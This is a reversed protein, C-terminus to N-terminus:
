GDGEDRCEGERTHHLWLISRSRSELLVHRDGSAEQTLVIIQECLDQEIWITWVLNVFDASSQRFKGVDDFLVIALSQEGVDVLAAVIDLVLSLAPGKKTSLYNKTNFFMNKLALRISFNIYNLFIFM